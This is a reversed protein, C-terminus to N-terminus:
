HHIQINKARRNEAQHEHPVTTKFAGCHSPLYFAMITEITDHSSTPHTSKTNRNQGYSGLYVDTFYGKIDWYAANRRVIDKSPAFRPRGEEDIAMNDDEDQAEPVMVEADASAVDAADLLFEQDNDIRSNTGLTKVFAFTYLAFRGQAASPVDALPTSEAKKLATPAPM